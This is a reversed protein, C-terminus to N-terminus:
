GRAGQTGRYGGSYRRRRRRRRLGFACLAHTAHRMGKEQCLMLTCLSGHGRCEKPFQPRAAQHPRHLCYAMPLGGGRKRNRSRAHQHMDICTATLARLLYICSLACAHADSKLLHQISADATSGLHRLCTAPLLFSARPIEARCGSSVARLGVQSPQPFPLMVGPPSVMAGPWGGYMWYIPHAAMHGPHMMMPPAALSAPQVDGPQYHSHSQHLSEAPGWWANNGPTCTDMLLLTAVAGTAPRVLGRFM